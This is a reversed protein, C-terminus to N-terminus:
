ELKMFQRKKRGSSMMLFTNNEFTGYYPLYYTNGKNNQIKNHTVEGSNNYTFDYLASSEFWGKSVKTRGDKKENLTKGSNLLVHLEDNKIFANYSPSQAKKFVSRSWDLKGNNDFKMILIDDYHYTTQMYGGGNMGSSVYVQTIYFEEALIYTNGNSDLLVYDVYFSKLEKGKKKKKIAKRYGFLDEYVQKPLETTQSKIVAMTNPNVLFSCGGKIRGVKTTSYFGLLKIDNNSNNIVISQIHLDDGLNIKLDKNSTKDVKSLTFQYNAEGDKKQKKGKKFLKGLVYVTAQDDIALDNPEYYKDTHKQYDKTYKLEFTNTNYVHVKYANANKKINDTAIVLYQGNPSIAVNTERKNSGSFLTQNKEVTTGFLKTKKYSKSVLNLTHCYIVREKKKPSFVTIFDIIDNYAVHGIYKEKKTSKIIQNHIKNLNEDFVDFMFNKKSSRLVATKNEKNTYIALITKAKELDKFEPSESVKLKTSQAFIMSNLSCCALILFLKKM